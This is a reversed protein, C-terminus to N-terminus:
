KTNLSRRRSTALGALALGFIAVTTPEPVSATNIDWGIADFAFLDMATPRLMEGPAATPDMIGIGQHDEWHSAQQGDGGHRGTSFNALNTAGGDVSFYSEAGPRFDKVGWGIAYSEESYRFLDLIDAVAYSDVNVQPDLYNYVYDYTDVGSTFGLAHGIEHIAVGVFDWKDTDIGDSADFDFAFDSSFTVNGDSAIGLHSLDLGMAKAVATNANIWYNDISGDNDLEDEDGNSEEQDLFILACPADGAPQTQDCSLNNIAVNDLASTADGILTSAFGQYTWQIATSGTSGLIGAGLSDFAISLNVTINDTFMSEWFSAAEQFGALAQQGKADAFQAPDYDLAITTANAQSCLMSAALIAGSIASLKTKTM